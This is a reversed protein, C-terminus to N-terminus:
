LKTYSQLAQRRYGVCESTQEGCATGGTPRGILKISGECAPPPRDPAVGCSTVLRWELVHGDSGLGRRPDQTRCCTDNESSVTIGVLLSVQTAPLISGTLAQQM